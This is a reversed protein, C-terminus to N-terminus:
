APWIRKGSRYCLSATEPMDSLIPAQPDFRSATSDDASKTQNKEFFLIHTPAGTVSVLKHTVAATKAADPNHKQLKLVRKSYAGGKELLTINRL